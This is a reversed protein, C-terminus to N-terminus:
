NIIYQATGLVAGDLYDVIVDLGADGRIFFVRWVWRDPPLDRAWGQDMYTGSMMGELPGAETASLTWDDPQSLEARAIDTAEDESIGDAPQTAAPGPTVPEVRGGDEPHVTIEVFGPDNVFVACVLRGSLEGQDFKDRTIYIDAPDDSMPDGVVEQVDLAATTSRGVYELATGAPFGCSEPAEGIAPEALSSPDGAPLARCGALMVILALLARSRPIVGALM